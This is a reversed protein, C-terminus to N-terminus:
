SQVEEKVIKVIKFHDERFIAGEFDVSRMDSYKFNAWEINTNKFNACELNCGEFNVAFLNAGEFNAAYLNSGSFDAYHLEMGRFDLDELNASSLKVKNFVWTKIATQFDPFDGQAVIVNSDYRSEIKIIM